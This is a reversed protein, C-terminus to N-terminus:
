LSLGREALRAAAEVFAASHRDLAPGMYAAPAARSTGFEVYSGYAATPGIEASLGFTSVGISNRLNGTDVPAFAKADAEIDHASKRVLAEGAIGMRAGGKALDVAIKNLEGVGEFWVSAM